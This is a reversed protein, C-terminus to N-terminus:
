RKFDHIFTEVLEELPKEIGKPRKTGVLVSRSEIWTVVWRKRQSPLVRARQFFQLSIVFSNMSAGLPGPSEWRRIAASLVGINESPPDLPRSGEQFNNKEHVAVGALSLQNLISARLTQPTLQVLEMNILRVPAVAVSKLGEFASPDPFPLLSNGWTISVCCIFELVLVQTFLLLPKVVIM